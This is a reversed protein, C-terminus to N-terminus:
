MWLSKKVEVHCGVEGKKKSQLSIYQLRLYFNSPALRESRAAMALGKLATFWYSFTEKTELAIHVARIDM